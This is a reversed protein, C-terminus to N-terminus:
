KDLFNSVANDWDYPLVAERTCIDKSNLADALAKNITNEDTNDIFYFGKKGILEKMEGYDTTIIPKNCSAAEMCSLPVDICRGAEQTPFFYVDSLQYIEEVDPLFEDIIRINDHSELEARLKSDQEHKTLTSCVLVVQYQSDIKMLKDVNRGYNLHGVHIIIPRQVDFGYKEKLEKSKEDSVPSFKKTDVGTKLYTIRDSPLIDKYFDASSKSFVILETKSWKLLMKALKNMESKMVLVTSMKRKSFFSLIFIRLATPLTKAPFPIYLLKDHKKIQSFLKRNLLFKNLKFSYDTLESQREYSVVTIDPNAQKLRKVLSNAVKLFGEDATKTLGNSLILLDDGCM